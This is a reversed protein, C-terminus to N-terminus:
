VPLTAQLSASGQHSGFATAKRSSARRRSMLALGAIASVLLVGGAPLPVPAVVPSSFTLNTSRVFDPGILFSASKGFGTAANLQAVTPIAGDWTTAGLANVGINFAEFLSQAAGGPGVFPNDGFYFNNSTQEYDVTLDIIDTDESFVLTPPTAEYTTGNITVSLSGQFRLFTKTYDPGFYSGADVGSADDITLRGTVPGSGIAALLSASTGTFGTAVFDITVVAAGASGALGATVLAAAALINRM